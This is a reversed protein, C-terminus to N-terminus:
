NLFKEIYKLPEEELAMQQLHYKWGLESTDTKYKAYEGKTKIDIILKKEEGWVEKAIKFNDKTFLCLIHEPNEKAKEIIKEKKM